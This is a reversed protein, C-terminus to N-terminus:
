GGWYARLIPDDMLDPKQHSPYVGTGGAYLTDLTLNRKKKEAALQTNVPEIKPQTFAQQILSSGLAALLPGM